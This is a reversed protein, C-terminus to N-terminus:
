IYYILVKEEARIQEMIENIDMKKCSDQFNNRDEYKAFPNAHINM